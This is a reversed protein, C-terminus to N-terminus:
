EGYIRLIKSIGDFLEAIDSLPPPNGGRWIVHMYVFHPLRRDYLTGAGCLWLAM